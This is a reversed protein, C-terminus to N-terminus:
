PLLAGRFTEVRAVDGRLRAFHLAAGGTGRRDAVPGPEGGAALLDGALVPRAAGRQRRVGRIKSAGIIFAAQAVTKARRTNIEQSIQLQLEPAFRSLALLEKQNGEIRTGRVNAAAEEQLNGAIELAMQIARESMDLKKAINRSFREGYLRLSQSKVFAKSKRSKGHVTEPYLREYVEKRAKLFNARDLANLEHRMLNEDIEALAAQDDSMESIIVHGHEGVELQEIDLLRLCELRHAGMVLKFRRGVDPNPRVVIPQRPKGANDKISPAMFEVHDRDIPRLRDEADIDNIHIFPIM